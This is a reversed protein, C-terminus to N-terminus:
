PLSGRSEDDVIGDEDLKAPHVILHCRPLWADLVVHVWRDAPVVEVNLARADWGAHWHSTVHVGAAGKDGTHSTSPFAASRLDQSPEDAKAKSQMASLGKSRKPQSALPLQPPGIDNVGISPNEPGAFLPPLIRLSWNTHSIRGRLIEADSGDQGPISRPFEPQPFHAPIQSRFLEVSAM